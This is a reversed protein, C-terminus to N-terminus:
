DNHAGLKEAQSKELYLPKVFMDNIKEIDCKERGTLNIFPMMGAKPINLANNAIVGAENLKDFHSENLDGCFIVDEYNSKIEELIEDITLVDYPHLMDLTGNNSDYISFYYRDNRAYIMSCIIKNTFSFNAAVVDLVSYDNVKINLTDAITNAATVGIRIGTFSGPGNTVFVETIDESTKDLRKLMEDVEVMLIESHRLKDNYTREALVKNNDVIAVTCVNTCTDMCLKM